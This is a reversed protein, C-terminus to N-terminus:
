KLLHKINNLNGDIKESPDIGLIHAIM